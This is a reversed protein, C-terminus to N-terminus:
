SFNHCVRNLMLVVAEEPTYDWRAFHGYIWDPKIREYTPALSSQYLKAPWHPYEAFPDQPINEVPLLRRVALSLANPTAKDSFIYGITAAVPASTRDGAPYFFIQSNGTHTQSRAFFVKHQKFRAQLRVNTEARQLLPRLEQPVRSLSLYEGKSDSGETETIDAGDVDDPSGPLYIRDYLTRIERVISPSEPDSLWRKM